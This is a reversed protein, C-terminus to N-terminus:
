KDHLFQITKCITEIDEDSLNEFDDLQAQLTKLMESKTDLKASKEHQQFFLATITSTLSGILGIGVIMLIAAIIRGIPTSPSIDGYGVTTTTVFSWWIGDFIDMGEVFHIAIGGTIICLLSTFVMYKLGNIEFFFKVRKYFRAFYASIRALKLFKLAKLVKLFKFVRFIKFLSNFPIIAILDFINQKFFLRKNKAVIVRVVYDIIFIVAIVNDFKLQFDTCGTTLDCLALYVAVLALISFLLDYIFSFQSKMDISDSM